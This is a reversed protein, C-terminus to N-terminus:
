FHVQACFDWFSQAMKDKWRRAKLVTEEKFQKLFINMSDNDNQAGMGDYLWRSIELLYWRCTEEQM